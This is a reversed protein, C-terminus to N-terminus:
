CFTLFYGGHTEKVFIVFSSNLPQFAMNIEENVNKQKIFLYVIHFFFKKKGVMKRRQSEIFDSPNKEGTKSLFFLNIFKENKRFQGLVFFIPFYQM